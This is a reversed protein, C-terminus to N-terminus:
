QKPYKSLFVIDVRRNLAQHEPTDNPVLPRSPGYGVAQLKQPDFGARSDLYSVVAAARAASLGWNDRYIGGLLPVSDTHGEVAVAPIVDKVFEAIKYMVRMGEPKLDARGSDFLFQDSLSVTVGRQDVRVEIEKELGEARLYNRLNRAVQQMETSTKPSEGASQSTQGGFVSSDQQVTKGGPLFGMAGQFSLIMLEFKQVDISSMSYLLVFFTLVLTVMDGYTLLWLPAGPQSEEKKKRAM